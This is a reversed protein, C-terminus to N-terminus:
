ARKLYNSVNKIREKNEKKASLGIFYVKLLFLFLYKVEYDHMVKM